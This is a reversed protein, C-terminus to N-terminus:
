HRRSKRKKKMKYGSVSSVSPAIRRKEMISKINVTAPHKAFGRVPKDEEGKFLVEKGERVCEYIPPFGGTPRNINNNNKAGGKNGGKRGNGGKDGGDQIFSYSSLTFYSDTELPHNKILDSAYDEIYEM